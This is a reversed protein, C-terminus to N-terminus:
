KAKEEAIMKEYLKFLYELREEDSGFPRSRYIREVALDLSQHAELLDAPMKDPDYLQAMTKESHKEREELITYVHRTLTEKQKTTLPPIPFTNYCLASSYRYDTKLRGAVARVWTMHMQSSIVGFIWPKADYIAQAADSIITDSNLFGIPIYERRESSTRPVIISDTDKHASFYYKHPTKAIKRTSAETSKARMESIKDLRKKIEPISNALGLQNDNIKLCWREEGRLFERAGVYKKIFIQADKYSKEINEKDKRILTLNGGDNLLSGYVLNPFDKSLPKSKRRISVSNGGTLYPNINKVSQLVGDKFILKPENSVNRIGVIVVTVGANGKANNEWKFSQHAFFIELNENLVRLWLLAM